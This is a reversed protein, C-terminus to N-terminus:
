VAGDGALSGAGTARRGLRGSRVAVAVGVAAGVMVAIGTGVLLVRQRSRRRRDWRELRADLSRLAETLDESAGLGADEGEPRLQAMSRRLRRYRAVEAQCHLCGEVHRRESEGLADPDDAVAPLARAVRDCRM